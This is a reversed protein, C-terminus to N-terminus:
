RPLGLGRTALVMRKVQPAGGAHNAYSQRYWAEPDGGMPAWRSGESVQGLPGIIQNCLQAFRSQGEKMVVVGLAGAFVPPRRNEHNGLSEYSLLRETEVM